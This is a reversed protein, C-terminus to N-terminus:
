RCISGVALSSLGPDVRPLLGTFHVPAGVGLVRRSHRTRPGFHRNVAIGRYIEPTRHFGSTSLVREFRRRQGLEYQAEAADSVLALGLSGLHVTPFM